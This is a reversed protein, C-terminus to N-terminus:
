KRWYIELLKIQSDVLRFLHNINVPSGPFSGSLKASVTIISMSECHESKTPEVVYESKERASRIWDKIEDNGRYTKGEDFVVADSSFCLDPLDESEGNAFTFYNDIATPLSMKM